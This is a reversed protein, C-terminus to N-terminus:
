LKRISVGYDNLPVNTCLGCRLSVTRGSREKDFFIFDMTM